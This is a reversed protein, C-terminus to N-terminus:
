GQLEEGSDKTDNSFVVRLKGTILLFVCDYRRLDRSFTRFLSGKRIKGIDALTHASLGLVNNLVQKSFHSCRARDITRLTQNDLTSELLFLNLVQELLIDTLRSYSNRFVSSQKTSYTVHLVHLDASVNSVLSFLNNKTCHSDHPDVRVTEAM